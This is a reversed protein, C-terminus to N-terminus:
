ARRASTGDRLRHCRWQSSVGLFVRALSRRRSRMEHMAIAPREFAQWRGFRPRLDGELVTLGAATGVTSRMAVATSGEDRPGDGLRRRM